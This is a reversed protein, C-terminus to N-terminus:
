KMEYILLKENKFVLEVEKHLNNLTKVLRNNEYNSVVAYKARFVTKIALPVYKIQEAPSLNLCPKPQDCYLGQASINRWLWYAQPDYEYSLTPDMGIIYHNYDNYFFMMPWMDWRDYFVMSDEKTNAKLWNNAQEFNAGIKDTDNYYFYYLVNSLNYFIIVALMGVLFFGIIKFNIKNALWNKIYVFERSASFDRFMVAAFIFTLPLWYEVGRQVLLALPFWLSSYLFLFNGTTSNKIHKKSSLFLVVALIYFSLALFNNLLFDPFDMLRIEGGVNLNVGTLKLYFIKFSVIIMVYIYNLSGPHIVIGALIGGASAILPKLNVRNNAYADAMTYILAMLIILPALHYCLAYLVTLIFLLRNKGKVLFLFALPFVIMSLLHPRGFLLRYSFIVSSSFLFLTWVLPYKVKLSRLVLYFVLFILAALFSVFVKAGAMLGFWHIFLAMALHFGWWIDTPAYNLFHFELWPKVLNLQGSQEILFAHKAHYYPDDTSTFGTISFHALFFISFFVIFILFSKIIKNNFIM